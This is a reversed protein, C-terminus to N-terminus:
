QNGAVTYRAFDFPVNAASRAELVAARLIATLKERVATAELETHVKSLAKHYLLQHRVPFVHNYSPPQTNDAPFTPNQENTKGAILTV